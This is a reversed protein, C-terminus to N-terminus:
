ASALLVPRRDRDAAPWKVKDNLHVSALEEPALFFDRAVIMTGIAMLLGAVPESATARWRRTSSRASRWRSPPCRSTAPTARARRQLYSSLAFGLGAFVLLYLEVFALRTNTRPATPTATSASSRARSRSSPSRAGPSCASASSRPDAGRLHADARRARSAAWCGALVQGRRPPDDRAVLLALAAVGLLAFPLFAARARTAAHERGAVRDAPVDRGVGPAGLPGTGDTSTASAPTRSLGYGIVLAAVLALVPLVFGLLAGGAYVGLALGVLASRWIARAGSGTPRGPSAASRRGAGAGADRDAARGVDAPAGRARVAADHGAGADGAARRAPAAPRARGLLRGDARGIASLAIPLRAGLESAGFITIGSRRCCCRWRRPRRSVPRRRDSRVPPGLARHRAGARRAEAGLPGLFRLPVPAAPLARGRVVLAWAWPPVRRLEDRLRAAPGMAPVPRNTAPAPAEPPVVAPQEPSPRRALAPAAALAPPVAAGGIGGLGGRAASAAAAAGGRRRRHRQRRDAARAAAAAVAAAARRGRRRHRRRAARAAAPAARAAAPAAPAPAAPAASTTAPRRARRSRCGWRRLSQGRVSRLVAGDVVCDDNTTCTGGLAVRDTCTGGSCRLNELCPPQDADCTTAARGKAVCRTRRAADHACYSDPTASRARTAACTAAHEQDGQRACLGKDCINSKDACDYKVTCATRRQKASGRSSTTAPTTSTPWSRRRSRRPRARLAIKTKNVCAGINGPTSSASAARRPRPRSRRASRWGSRDQLRGRRGRLRDSVQCEAEAKQTCFDAETLPKGGGGGGCGALLGAIAAVRALRRRTM